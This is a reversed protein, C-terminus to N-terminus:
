KKLRLISISDKASERVVIHIDCNISLRNMQILKVLFELIDKEEKRTQARGGGILPVIVPYGQNRDICYQLAKILSTGYEVDSIYPHLMRDFSTLGLFFFTCGSSSQIEAVTGETYRKLNGKPKSNRTVSIYPQNILIQQIKANLTEETYEGVAYLYKMAQGHLSKSSILDDDIITDFCRNVSVLINRRNTVANESLVDPSLADGYQVYVHHNNGVNMLEIKNTKLACIVGIFYILIFIGVVISVALLLRIWWALTSDLLDDSPTFLTIMGWITFLVGTWKIAFNFCYSRNAVIRKFLIKVREAKTKDGITDM